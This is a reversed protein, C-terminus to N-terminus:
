DTDDKPGQRNQCSKEKRGKTGKTGHIFPMPVEIPEDITKPEPNAENMAKDADLFVKPIKAGPLYYDATAVM